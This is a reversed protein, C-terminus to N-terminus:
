STGLDLKSDSADRLADGVFNFALVTLFIALGPFVSMWWYQWHDMGVAIMYGWSPAPPRVGLGLFSLSSETILATSGSLSAYIILNGTINPWLHRTIIRQNTAGLVIAAKIFERGRLSLVESRVIRAFGPSKAIAIAIASNQVSPGLIAVIALAFILFPFALIADMIRMLIIDLWGGVYGAILGVTAGVIAAGAISYGVVQLSIQSGWVIRSFVDRGIEDTGFWYKWSPAQLARTLIRQPPYPAVWPAFVAAIVVLTLFLLGIVGLKHTAFRRIYRQTPSIPIAAVAMSM